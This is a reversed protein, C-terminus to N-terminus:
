QTQEAAPTIGPPNNNCTATNWPGLQHRLPPLRGHQSAVQGAPLVEGHLSPEEVSLGQGEAVVDLGGVAREDEM